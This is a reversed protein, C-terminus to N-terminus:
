RAYVPFRKCLDLVQGRVRQIMVDDSIDELVDCLWHSIQRTEELKSDFYRLAHLM